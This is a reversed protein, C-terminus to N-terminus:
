LKYTNDEGFIKENVRLCINEEMYSDLIYQENPLYLALRNGIVKFDGFYTTEHVARTRGPQSVIELSERYKNTLNIFRSSNRQVIPPALQKM